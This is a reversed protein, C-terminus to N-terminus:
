SLGIENSEFKHISRRLVSFIEFVEINTRMTIVLRVVFNSSEGLANLLKNSLIQM